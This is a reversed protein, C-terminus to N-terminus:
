WHVHKSGENKLAEFGKLPEWFNFVNLGHNLGV